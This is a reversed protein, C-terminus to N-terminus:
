PQLSVDLKGFKPKKLPNFASLTSQSDTGIFVKTNHYKCPNASMIKTPHNLALVEPTYSASVMGTTSAMYECTTNSQPQIVSKRNQHSVCAGASFHSDM